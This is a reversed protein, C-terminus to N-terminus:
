PVEANRVARRHKIIYSMSGSYDFTKNIIREFKELAEGLSATENLEITDNILALKEYEMFSSEEELFRIKCYLELFYSESYKDTLDDITYRTTPINRIITRGNCQEPIRVVNQRVRNYLNLLYYKFNQYYKGHAYGYALTLIQDTSTIGYPSVYDKVLAPSGIDAVIRWPMSQDVMFGYSNCANVYFGWNPSNLFNRVKPVDNIPNLNAIEVALGSTRISSRTSKVFATQTFATTPATYELMVLLEKIFEEFNKVQINNAKFFAATVNMYSHWQDTYARQPDQYAKHVRLSSLYPDTKSIKGQMACKDFQQALGHFADVVFNIASTGTRETTSDQFQKLRLTSNMFIIPTFVRNVRGYFQKEGFHFDIINGYIAAQRLMQNRYINRKIYLKRANESNKEAYYLSM